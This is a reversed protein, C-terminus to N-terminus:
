KKTYFLDANDKTIINVGTDVYSPLPNIGNKKWGDVPNMLEHKEQFLFNMSWYGMNYSGQAITAVADGAKIADLLSNDADFGVVKVQNKKNAEKVAVIAGLAGPSNGAFIGKLNPNAQIIGAAAKNADMQEGSYNGSAVVKINPYKEQMEAKFGAARQELTPTGAVYLVAVEGSSGINKALTDAAVRGASENGTQVIINRNSDPSDSDFVVVPIGQAIAKNIPGALAKGNVATIAIGAPKKAIVEELVSVQQNIDFQQAGTYVTKIGYLKGADQFGKFTSKWFELGSMFTVM